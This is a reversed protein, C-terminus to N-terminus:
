KRKRCLPSNIIVQNPERNTVSHYKYGNQECLERLDTALSGLSKGLDRTERSLNVAWGAQVPGLVENQLNYRNIVQEVESYLRDKPRQPENAM